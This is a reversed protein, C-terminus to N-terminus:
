SDIKLHIRIEARMVFFFFWLLLRSVMIISAEEEQQQVIMRLAGDGINWWSGNKQKKTRKKDPWASQKGITEDM